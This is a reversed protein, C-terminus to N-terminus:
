LNRFKVSRWGSCKGPFSLVHACSHTVEDVQTRPSAEKTGLSLGHRYFGLLYFLCLLKLLIVMTGLVNILLPACVCAWLLILCAGSIRRGMSETNVQM